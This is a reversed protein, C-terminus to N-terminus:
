KLRWATVVALETEAAFAVVVVVKSTAVRYRWSGGEFEAPEVWRGRLVAICDPMTLEDKAMEKEAHKSVLMVGDKLIRRILKRADTPSLPEDV